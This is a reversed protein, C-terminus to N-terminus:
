INMLVSGINIQDFLPHGKRMGWSMYYPYFPEKAFAYNCKGTKDFDKKMEMGVQELAKGNL